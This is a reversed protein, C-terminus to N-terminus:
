TWTTRTSRSGRSAPRSARRRRRTGSCRRARTTAAWGASGTSCRRPTRGPRWPRGRLPQGVRHRAAPRRRHVRREGDRAGRGPLRVAHRPAPAAGHGADERVAGPVRRRRRLAVRDPAPRPQELLPQELGDRRARGALAGALAQPRAPRAAAPRVERRRPRPRRARVPLGHRARPPRPRHVARADDTTCDPMEGVTLLGATAARSCRPTCRRCSSTSARVPSSTRRGTATCGTAASRPGDPLATDKSIMNIVDMRFGDVGRDLWWRMM